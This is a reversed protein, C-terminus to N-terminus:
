AFCKQAEECDDGDCVYYDICNPSEVEAIPVGQRIVERKDGLRAAETSGFLFLLAVLCFLFANM